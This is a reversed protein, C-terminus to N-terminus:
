VMNKELRIQRDYVQVLVREMPGRSVTPLWNAKNFTALTVLDAIFTGLLNKHMREVQKRVGGGCDVFRGMLVIKM